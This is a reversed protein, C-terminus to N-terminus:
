SSALQLALYYTTGDRSVLLPVAEKKQRQAAHIKAVAEDPSIGMSPEQSSLEKLMRQVAPM